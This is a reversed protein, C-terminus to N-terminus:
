THVGHCQEALFGLRESARRVGDSLEAGEERGAGRTPFSAKRSVIRIEFSHFGSQVRCRSVAFIGYPTHLPEM